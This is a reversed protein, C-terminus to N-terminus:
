IVAERRRGRWLAVALGMASAAGLGSGLRLGPTTHQLSIRHTGASLPVALIMHNVRVVPAAHGDVRARWGANWSEAVVLWGPGEARADIRGAGARVLQASSPHGGSLAVGAPVDRTEVLAERYPDIGAAGLSSLKALVTREDPLVHLGAVVWTRGKSRPREFLRVAPTSATEQFSGADSVYVSQPSIARAQGRAGDWLLLRSVLLRPGNPVAVIKVADLNYRGPLRIAAAYRHGEFLAGQPRWSDITAPREHQVHARVDPRDWAWEATEIGARVPFSFEGRGSALRVTVVAILHGQPVSVSDSLSSVLHIETAALIPLPFLRTQGPEIVVPMARGPDPGTALDSAPVQVWRIGLADLRARDTRFFAEPLLGAVNMDGLARRTRLPVMPDYGNASRRGSAAALGGYALDIATEYPWDRALTLTRESLLGGMQGDVAQRTTTGEELDRRTAAGRWADRGYPQLLFSVTLPLLWLRARLPSPSVALSFYLILSLALVGVAGTLLEPLPGLAAAAVSLAASSALSFFLFYARLRRGRRLGRLAWQAGLSLGALVSLTFDFVLPSMGHADLPQGWQVALSLALAVALVRVAPHSTILPLAALGLAAAPTHSIYRLILGMAGPLWDHVTALGTVPRGADLAGYMAPVLQPAALMLGAAIAFLTWRFAPPRPGGTFAYGVVIRGVLLVAGARAAEPSGAVLLLAVAVALGVARGVSARNMHSEAALLLLPLLPAAVVASTDDLHGVLYPGLAFSLGGVYAGVTDARLRRLYLFTLVATTSLSGVVLVQFAAFPPLASLAIMPPYFAGARYAALLPTGCFQGANWAPVDGHAYAEWVAARLPYHLATGDGPGVLRGHWWAPAHAVVPLAALLGLVLLERGRVRHKV